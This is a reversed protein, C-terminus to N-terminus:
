KFSVTLIDFQKYKIFKYSDLSFKDYTDQTTKGIKLSPFYSFGCLVGIVFYTKQIHQCSVTLPEFIM